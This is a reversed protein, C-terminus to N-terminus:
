DILSVEIGAEGYMLMALDYKSGARLADPPYAVIRKIGAQIIAKACNVCSFLPYVYITCGVLSKNSNLIANLEAHVVFDLKTERNNWRDEFDVVGRPFGNYGTGAIINREDVIVAGVKTSPDKSRESINIALKHFYEDWNNM